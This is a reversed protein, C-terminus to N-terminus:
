KPLEVLFTEPTEGHVLDYARIMVRTAGDPVSVGSLSRTFPQEDIHPHALSRTDLLTKGDETWVEWRNAFHAWSEDKHELTVHFSYTKGFLGVESRVTADVIKVENALVTQASFFALAILLLIALRKM